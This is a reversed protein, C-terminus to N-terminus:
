KMQGIFAGIAGLVAGFIAGIFPAIFIGIIGGVASIAFDMGAGGTAGIGALSLIFGIIANILAAIAGTVTGVIIGGVLDMKEEKVAKFGAWANVIWGVIALPMGVVCLLAPIILGAVNSFVGILVLIGIPLIAVKIIKNIDM